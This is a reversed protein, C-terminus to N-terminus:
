VCVCPVDTVSWLFVCGGECVRVGERECVRV